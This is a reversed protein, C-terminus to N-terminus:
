GSGQNEIWDTDHELHYEGQTVPPEVDVFLEHRLQVRVWELEGRSKGELSELFRVAEDISSFRGLEGDDCTVRIM